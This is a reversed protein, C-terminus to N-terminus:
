QVPETGAAHLRTCLLLLGAGLLALPGVPAGTFPLSGRGATVALTEIVSGSTAGRAVAGLAGGGSRNGGSGPGGGGDGSAGGGSPAATDGPSLVRIPAAVALPAQATNDAVQVNTGGAQATGNEGSQSQGAAGNGGGGPGASATAVGDDDGASLVRVPAYLGIPSQATIGVVQISTLLAQLAGNEGSQSQGASGNGDGNATATASADGRDEGPSLIRIPLVVRVPAQVTNGAVQVNTVGVQAAGNSGSHSQTAPGGGAGREASAEGGGADNGPSLVHVPANVRVPAQVTNGTVQVNTVVAQLAGNSGSQSQTAGVQASGPGALALGAVAAAALALRHRRRDIGGSPNGRGRPTDNSM